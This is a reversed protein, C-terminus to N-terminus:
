QFALLLKNLTPNLSKPVTLNVKEQNIQILNKKKKSKNPKSNSSVDMLPGDTKPKKVIDHDNHQIEQAPKRKLSAPLERGFSLNTTLKKFLDNVEM